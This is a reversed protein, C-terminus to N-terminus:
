CTSIQKNEYFTRETEKLSTWREEDKLNQQDLSLTRMSEM